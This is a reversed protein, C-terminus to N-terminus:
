QATKRPISIPRDSARLSSGSLLLYYPGGPKDEACREVTGAPPLHMFTRWTTGTPVRFAATLALHTAEEKILLSEMRRDSPYVVIEQMDVVDEGLAEKAHLWLDDFGAKKLKDINKLQFVRVTTPLASGDTNENVDDTAAMYMAIHCRGPGAPTACSAAGVGLLVIAIERMSM